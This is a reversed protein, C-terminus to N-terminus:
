LLLINNIGITLCLHHDAGDTGFYWYDSDLRITRSEDSHGFVCKNRNTISHSGMRITEYKSKEKWILEGDKNLKWVDRGDKDILKVPNWACYAYPSVCPYKDAMPDVSLWMTMLDHDMYRVGFYGYGTEEDKEKGTFSCIRSDTCSSSITTYYLSEM